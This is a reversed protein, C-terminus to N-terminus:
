LSGPSIPPSQSFPPSPSNYKLELVNTAGEGCEMYQFEANLILVLHHMLFCRWLRFTVLWWEKDCRDSTKPIMVWWPWMLWRRWQRWQRWWRWWRCWRWWGWWYGSNSSYCWDLRWYTDDSVLTVDTLDTSVILWDTLWYTLLHTVVIVELADPSALFVHCRLFANDNVRFISRADIQFDGWIWCISKFLSQFLTKAFGESIIRICIQTNIKIQLHPLYSILKLKNGGMTFDVAATGRDICILCWSSM